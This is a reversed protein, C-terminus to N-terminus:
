SSIHYSLPACDILKTRSKELSERELRKYKETIEGVNNMHEKFARDRQEKPIEKWGANELKEFFGKHERAM